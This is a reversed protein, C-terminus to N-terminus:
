GASVHDAVVNIVADHELLAKLAVIVQNFGGTSDLARALVEDETGVYGHEEIVLLTRDLGKETLTWTVTTFTDGHGWDLVIRSPRDVQKVRVEIEIADPATGVFWTVTEGARLGDDRRTLWFKSMIAPDIFADFVVERASHVIIQARASIENIPM